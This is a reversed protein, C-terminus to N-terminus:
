CSVWCYSHVYAWLILKNASVDERKCTRSLSLRDSPKTINRFATSSKAKKTM